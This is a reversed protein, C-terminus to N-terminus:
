YGVQKKAKNGVEKQRYFDKMKYLEESNRQIQKSQNCISNKEFYVRVITYYAGM